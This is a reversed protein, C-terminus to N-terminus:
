YRKTANLHNIKLTQTERDTERDRDKQKETQRDRDRETRRQRDRLFLNKSKFKSCKMLKGKTDNPPM